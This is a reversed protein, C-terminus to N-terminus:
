AEVLHALARAALSAHLYLAPLWVAVGLVLPQDPLYHFGGLWALTAEVLPGAVAVSLALLWRRRDLRVWPLFTAVLGATLAWPRDRFVSTLFYALCFDFLLLLGVTRSLREGPQRFRRAQNVLALTSVGFLIPVWWAQEWLYPHAYALVRHTVHQHDLVTALTAGVLALLASRRLSKASIM